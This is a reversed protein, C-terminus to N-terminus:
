PLSSRVAEKLLLVPQRSQAHRCWELLVMRMLRWRGRREDGKIANGRRPTRNVDESSPWESSFEVDGLPSPLRDAHYRRGHVTLSHRRIGSDTKFVRGCKQGDGRRVNCTFEQEDAMETERLSNKVKNIGCIYDKQWRPPRRGRRPRSRRTNNVDGEAVPRSLVDEYLTCPDPRTDADTVVSRDSAVVTTNPGALEDAVAPEQLGALQGPAVAGESGALENSCLLEGSNIRISVDSATDKSRGEQAGSVDQKNRLYKLWGDSLNGSYSKLKDVHVVFSRGGPSRKLVYTVANIRREVLCPGIYYSSWKPSRRRWSRPQYVWVFKGPSFETPKVTADYIKKRQRAAVHTNNRVVAYVNEMMEQLRTV